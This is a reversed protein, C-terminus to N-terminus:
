FLEMVKDREGLTDGGQMADLAQRPDTDKLTEIGRLVCELRQRVIDQFQIEGIAATLAGAIDGSLREMEVLIRRQYGTMREYGAGMGALQEAIEDLLLREAALRSNATGDELQMRITTQFQSLGQKITDVATKTQQALIRVEAAVVAFGRGAPGAHTAEISANLALIDTTLVIAGIADVSLQLSQTDDVIRTFRAHDGSIAETRQQLYGKLRELFGHNRSVSEGSDGLLTESEQDSKRVFDGFAAVLTDVSQLRGMITYAAGETEGIVSRLHENTYDCLEPLQAHGPSPPPPRELHELLRLRATALAGPRDTDVTQGHRKLIQKWREDDLNAAQLNAQVEDVAILRDDVVLPGNLVRGLSHRFRATARRAQTTSWWGQAAGASVAIILAGAIAPWRLGDAMGGLSCAAVGAICAMGYSLGFAGMAQLPTRRSVQMGMESENIVIQAFHALRNRDEGPFAARPKDDIICFSGLRAGNLAILPAGAYFRIHPPGTVLPNESFRPDKTADLVVMVSDQRITHDCFAVNRPTEPTKLGVRSKFWQRNKDVLSVLAFATGFHAAAARTLRDYREEPASDLLDTKRLTKLRRAEELM